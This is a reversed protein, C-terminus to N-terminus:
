PLWSWNHLGNPDRPRRPWPGDLGRGTKADVVIWESGWGRVSEALARMGGDEPAAYVRWWRGQYRIMDDIRVGSGRM